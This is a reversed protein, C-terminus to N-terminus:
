WAQDSKRHGVGLPRSQVLASWLIRECRDRVDEPNPEDTPAWRNQTTRELDVPPPTQASRMSDASGRPGRAMQKSPTVQGPHIMPRPGASILAQVMRPDLPWLAPPAPANMEQARSAPENSQPTPLRPVAVDVTPQRHLDEWTQRGLVNAPSPRRLWCQRLTPGQPEM